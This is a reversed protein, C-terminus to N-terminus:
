GRPLAGHRRLMKALADRAPSASLREYLERLRELAHTSFHVSKQASYVKKLSEIPQVRVSVLSVQMRREQLFRSLAPALLRLKAAVASNAALLALKGDKFNAVRIQDRLEATLFNRVLEGLARLDRTKALLPQLDGQAALIRDLKTPLLPLTDPSSTCIIRIESRSALALDTVSDAMCRTALPLTRSMTTSAAM